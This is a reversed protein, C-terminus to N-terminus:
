FVNYLSNAYAMVQLHVSAYSSMAECHDTSSLPSPKSGIVATTRSPQPQLDLMTIINVSTHLIYSVFYAKIAM